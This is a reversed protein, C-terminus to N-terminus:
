LLPFIDSIAFYKLFYMKAFSKDTEQCCVNCLKFINKSVLVLLQSELGPTTYSDLEQDTRSAERESGGPRSSHTCFLCTYGTVNRMASQGSSALRLRKELGM